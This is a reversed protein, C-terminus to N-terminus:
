APEDQFSQWCCCQETGPVETGVYLVGGQDVVVIISCTCVVSQTSAVVASKESVMGPVVMMSTQPVVSTPPNRGYPAPRCSRQRSGQDSAVSTARAPTRAQDTGVSPNETPCLRRASPEALYSCLQVLGSAYPKRAPESPVSWGRLSPQVIRM